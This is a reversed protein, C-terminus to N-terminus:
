EAQELKKGIAARLAALLTIHHALEADDLYDMVEGCYHVVDPFAKNFVAEGAPTLAVFLSRRDHEPVTRTILGKELLRDLVGTLTGKTILTRESLERCSMGATNGLTAIVDFQPHTLGHLRIRQTSLQEFAQYTRVLERVLPISRHLATKQTM